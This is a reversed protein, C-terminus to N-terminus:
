WEERRMTEKKRWPKVLVALAMEPLTTGMRAEGVPPNSESSTSNRSPTTHSLSLTMFPCIDSSSM